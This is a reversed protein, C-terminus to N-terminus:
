TFDLIFQRSAVGGQVDVERCGRVREWSFEVQGSSSISDGDRVRLASVLPCADCWFHQWRPFKRWHYVVDQGLELTGLTRSSELYLYRIRTPSDLRERPYIEPHHPPAAHM